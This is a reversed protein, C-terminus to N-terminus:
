LGMDNKYGLARKQFMVKTFYSEKIKKFADIAKYGKIEIENSIPIKDIENAFESEENIHLVNGVLDYFGVNVIFSKSAICLYYNLNDFKASITDMKDNNNLIFYKFQIRKGTEQKYIVRKMRRHYSPKEYGDVAPSKDFYDKTISHICVVWKPSFEKVIYKLGDNPNQVRITVPQPFHFSKDNDLISSLIEWIHISTIPPNEHLYSIEAKLEEIIKEQADIKDDADGLEFVASITARNIEIMKSIYVSISKLLKSKRKIDVQSSYNLISKLESLEDKIENANKAM